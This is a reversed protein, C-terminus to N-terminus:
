LACASARPAVRFLYVALLIVQVSFLAWYHGETLDVGALLSSRGWPFVEGGFQQPRGALVSDLLKFGGVLGLGQQYMLVQWDPRERFRLLSM